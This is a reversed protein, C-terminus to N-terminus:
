PLRIEVDGSDPTRCGSEVRGEEATPHMGILACKKLVDASCYPLASTLMSFPALPRAVRCRRRRFWSSFSNAMRGTSGKCVGSWPHQAHVCVMGRTGLLALRGVMAERVRPLRRLDNFVVEVVLDRALFWAKCSNEVFRLVKDLAVIPDKLHEERLELRTKNRGLINDKREPDYFDEGRDKAAKM